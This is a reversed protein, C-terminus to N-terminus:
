LRSLLKTNFLRNSQTDAVIINRPVIQGKRISNKILSCIETPAGKKLRDRAGNANRIAKNKGRPALSPQFRPENCFDM